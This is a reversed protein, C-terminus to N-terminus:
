LKATRFLTVRYASTALFARLFSRSLTSPRTAGACTPAAAFTQDMLAAEEASGHASRLVKDVLGPQLAALCDTAGYTPQDEAPVSALYVKQDAVFAAYKPDQATWGDFGPGDKAARRYLGEAISGRQLSLTRPLSGKVSCAQLREQIDKLTSQERGSNAPAAFMASLSKKGLGSACRGYDIMQNYVRIGDPTDRDPRVAGLMASNVAASSYDGQAPPPPPPTYSQAFAGQPACLTVLGAVALYTIKM